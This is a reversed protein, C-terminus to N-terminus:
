IYIYHKNKNTTINPYTCAHMYMCVYMHECAYVRMCIIRSVCVCMYISIHTHTEKSTTNSLDHFLLEMSFSRFALTSQNNITVNTIRVGGRGRGGGEGVPLLRLCVSLTPSVSHHLSPFRSLFVEGLSWRAGLPLTRSPAGAMFCRNDCIDTMTLGPYPLDGCLTLKM